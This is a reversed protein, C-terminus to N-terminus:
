LEIIAPLFGVLTRRTGTIHASGELVVKGNSKEPSNKESGPRAARKANSEEPEVRHNEGGLYRLSRCDTWCLRGGDATLDLM